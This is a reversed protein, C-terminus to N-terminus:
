KQKQFKTYYWVLFEEFDVEGSGDDDVESWYRQFLSAPVDSLDSVNMLKALLDAFEQEDICGSGDEDFGDFVVKIREVDIITHGYTRAIERLHREEPDPVLREEAFTTRMSWTLYEEFNICEAKSLPMDLGESFALHDPLVHGEPIGCRHRVMQDFEEMTLHGKNTVDFENFEEWKRKVEMVPFRHKNALEVPDPDGSRGETGTSQGRSFGFSSFGLTNFGLTRVPDDKEKPSDQPKTKASPDTYHTIYSAYSTNRAERVTDRLVSPRRSSPAVSLAFLDGVGSSSLEDATDAMDAITSMRTTDQFVPSDETSWPVPEDEGISSMSLRRPQPVHESTVVDDPASNGFVKRNPYGTNSNRRSPASSPRTHTSLALQMELSSLSAM